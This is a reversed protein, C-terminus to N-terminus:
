TLRNQSLGIQKAEVPNKEAWVHCVRALAKWTSEDLFNKGVRGKTHHVEVSKRNCGDRGCECNPREKLFIKSREKYQENQLIRKESVQNPRKKKKEEKIRGGLIHQMRKQQYESLAM